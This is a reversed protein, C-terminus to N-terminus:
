APLFCCWNCALPLVGLRSGSKLGGQVTSKAGAASVAGLAGVMFYSYLKNKGESGTSVYKGFDPIQSGKSEGKFKFPSSYAPSPASEPRVATTSLARVAPAVPKAAARLCLRSATALTAM